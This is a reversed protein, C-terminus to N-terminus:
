AGGWLDMQGTPHAGERHMFLDPEAVHGYDDLAYLLAKYLTGKGNRGTGTFIPLIHERVEGLLALGALRQVFGRVAGDPLVRALFAEWVAPQAAEPHYAGRCVKTIRDAPNHPRLEQTRLDLTGNATNLLYPDADLDRVTAAFVTLAAAIELVGALGAASECKRVDARLERDGLSEALARRLVDLVARHAAGTDDAAWRRGDWQHWGIGHVHLLKNEYAAALLYAMRVQGSHKAQEADRIGHAQGSDGVPLGNRAEEVAVLDDLGLGAAIHDALDKGARAEVIRVSAAIGQLQEAVQYAHRRGPEDRDAVIVVPHDRLPTWDFKHAKGAGMAGCVAVAGVARAAEVDKEGEVAYVTGHAGINDVGYLARGSTNGSQAFKKGPKRHVKRGDTYTYTRSPNYAARIRPEDFLDRDTLGIAGLIDRHDCGAHCYVVVGTGDRRQKISLSPNSDDHAPCQAALQDGREVVHKGNSRLAEAIAILAASM